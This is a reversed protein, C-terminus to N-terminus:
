KRYNIMMLTIDDYQPTNGSFNMVEGIISEVMEKSSNDKFKEFSASLRDKSFFERAENEVDTVGDSYIFFGNFSDVVTSSYKAGPFVGLAPGGPKNLVEVKDPHTRLFAPTHGGNSFVLTGKKTDLVGYFLTVFMELNNEGCLLANVRELCRAPDPEVQATAKLFARCVAAFIAAPIGKGSADGVAFGLHSEDIKFVDYFDGGVERAPLMRAFIEVGKNERFVPFELPLSSVQIERAVELENAMREKDSTVKKIKEIHKKIDETMRNVSGALTGVEYTSFDVPLKYDLDGRAVVEVGETLRSVPKTISNALLVIVAFLLVLGAVGIRFVSKAMDYVGANVEKEPYVFAISFGTSNMPHVIILSKKETIPDKSMISGSNGSCMLAALETGYGSINGSLVKSKDPFSLFKGSESVIFAYGSNSLKVDSVEDALSNLSIDVTTIGAFSGNRHFPVSYTIMLTEGGGTDFYPESWAPKNMEKPIRYWDKQPYDYEDTGLQVFGVGKEGHYYYPSFYKLDDRFQYPEFAIAAGYIFSNEAVISALHRKIEEEDSLRPNNELFIATMRPIVSARVFNQEFKEEYYDALKMANNKIENKVFIRSYNFNLLMLIIFILAVTGWIWFIMRSKLTKKM